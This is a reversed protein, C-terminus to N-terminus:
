VGRWAETEIFEASVAVLDLTASYPVYSPQTLFSCGSHGQGSIFGGLEPVRDNRIIQVMIGSLTITGNGGLAVEIGTYSDGDFQTSVRTDDTVSLVPLTTTAGYTTAGTTPRVTVTGGTGTAGHVGVWASYGPPIPVWVPLTPVSPLVKYVISQVPYALDNAPTAIATGRVGGNLPLGDYLGQSPSAFWQPLMNKDMVFPDAWYVAGTGYIKDAFDLVKRAEDRSTKNWTMAYGKHAAVSSRKYAGGNLFVGSTEWGTKASPMDVKPCDIWTAYDRTGFWMKPKAM